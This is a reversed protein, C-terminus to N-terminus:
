ANRDNHRQQRGHSSYHRGYPVPPRSRRVWNAWCIRQRRAPTVRVKVRVRVGRGGAALSDELIAARSSHRQRCLKSHWPNRGCVFEFQCSRVERDDFHAAIAFSAVVLVAAVPAVVAVAAVVASAAAAAAAIPIAVAAAVAPRRIRRRALLLRAFCPFCAIFWALHICYVLRPSGPSSDGLSLATKTPRTAAHKPPRAARTNVQFTSYYRAAAVM